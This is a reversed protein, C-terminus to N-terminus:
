RQFHCSPSTNSEFQAKLLLLQGIKKFQVCTQMPLNKKISHLYPMVVVINTFCKIATPFFFVMTRMCYSSNM